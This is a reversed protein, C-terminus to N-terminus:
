GLHQYVSKNKKAFNKSKRWEKNQYTHNEPMDVYRCLETFDSGSELAEQNFAFFATLETERQIELAESEQQEDFVVQHQDKLHVRLAKVSPKQETIPFNMLHWTPTM